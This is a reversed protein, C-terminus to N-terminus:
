GSEGSSTGITEIADAVVVVGVVTSRLFELSHVAEFVRLDCARRGYPANVSLANRRRASLRARGHGIPRTSANVTAEAVSHGHPRGCLSTRASPSVTPM